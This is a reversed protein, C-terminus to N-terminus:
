GFDAKSLFVHCLFFYVYRQSRWIESRLTHFWSKPIGTHTPLLFHLVPCKSVFNATNCLLCNLIKSVCPKTLGSFSAKCLKKANSFVLVPSLIRIERHLYIRSIPFSSRIVQLILLIIVWSFKILSWFIMM